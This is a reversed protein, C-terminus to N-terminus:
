RVARFVDTAVFRRPNGKGGMPTLIGLSVLKQIASNVTPFTAATKKVLQPVTVIPFGILLDVVDRAVGRLNNLRVIEVYRERTDLLEDIRRTTDLASDKIGTAFFQIWPDWNGSASLEALQDIYADKRAEFWPSVTLLPENVAQAQILQLAILLRGIRGNGDNFPHLTEFQYHTMAAAIVPHSVKPPTANVWDM